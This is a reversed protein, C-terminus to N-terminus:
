APWGTSVAAPLCRIAIRDWWSRRGHPTNATAVGSCIAGRMSARQLGADRMRQTLWARGEDFLPSFSRRTYPRDPETIDGLAMLDAWLRDSDIRGM